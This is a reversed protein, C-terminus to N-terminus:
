APESEIVALLDCERLILYPEDDVTLAHGSAWSFVVDDGVKVSPERRTVARLLKAADYVVQAGYTFESFGELKQALADAEHFLPHRCPGVAVVTGQMEVFQDARNEPLVLGSDTTDPNKAPRILIRDNLPKLM